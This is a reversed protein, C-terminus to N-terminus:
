VKERKLSSIREKFYKEEDLLLEFYNKNAISVKMMMANEAMEKRADRISQMEDPYDIEYLRDFYSPPRVKIGGKNNELFIEQNVYADKGNDVFWQYGIGPRRSMLNFEPEINFTQYYMNQRGYHKKTCYRSVYACTNWNVEAVMSFGFPWVEELLPSRYTIFGDNQGFIYRDDCFDYGFIIAHYHPRKTKGGYEGCAFFRIQEPELRRRLRKMFRQFERKDLTYSEKIEGNGDVYESRPLHEDDYTLTIFSARDHYKLELMMRNAWERSRKVTCGICRGCPVLVSEYYTKGHWDLFEIDRNEKKVFKLLKKGNDTEGVVFAKIPHYCTM